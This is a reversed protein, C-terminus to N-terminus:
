RIDNLQFTLAKSSELTYNFHKNTPQKNSRMIGNSSNHCISPVLPILLMSFDSRCYQPKFKLITKEKSKPWKHLQVVVIPWLLKAFTADFGHLFDTSSELAINRADGLKWWLCSRSRNLWTQVSKCVSLCRPDNIATTQMEHM